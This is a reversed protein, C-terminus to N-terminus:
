TGDLLQSGKAFLLDHMNEQLSFIGKLAMKLYRISPPKWVHPIFALDDLKFFGGSLAKKNRVIRDSNPPTGYNYYM